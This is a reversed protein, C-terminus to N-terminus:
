KMYYLFTKQFIKEEGRLEGRSSFILVGQSVHARRVDELITHLRGYTNCGRVCIYVRPLLNIIILRALRTHSSSLHIPLPPVAYTVNRPVLGQFIM